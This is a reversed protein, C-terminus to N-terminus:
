VWWFGGLQPVFRACSILEHLPGANRAKQERPRPPYRSQAGACQGSRATEPRFDGSAGSGM